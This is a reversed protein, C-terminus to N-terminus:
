RVGVTSRLCLPVPSIARYPMALTSSQWPAPQPQRKSKLQVGAGDQVFRAIPYEDRV